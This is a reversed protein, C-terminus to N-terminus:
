ALKGAVLDALVEGAPRTLWGTFAKTFDAHFSPNRTRDAPFLDAIGLITAALEDPGAKTEAMRRVRDALPDNPVWRAGYRPAAAALYAAWGAAAAALLPASQGRALRDMAPGLLRQLLKQSGDTAIQHNTHRIARNSLRDFCAAIYPAPEMGPVLPLTPATEERLMRTLFANLLPHNIGDCTTELGLLCGIHAMATQAGNLLRFKVAEHGAVDPVFSAGALDWCPLDPADTAEIVWQRFPEGVVPVADDIGTDALLRARDDATAAPVIRDVMTSPFRVSAEIWDVLAAGRPAAMALVVARLVRGNGPVNDCSILTMGVAHTLRRQALAEVLLGPLSAPCLPQALDALIDPHDPDLSGTLPSHCYGKETVTLTAVTMAPDALVRLVAAPDGQLDVARRLGGIVRTQRDDNSVLTRTYHGAQAALVAGMAPPRLTLGTVFRDEAGAELLDETYDAQHCRHFAGVGIHILGPRLRTPDYTPRQIAISPKSM